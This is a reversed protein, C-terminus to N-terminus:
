QCRLTFVAFRLSLSADPGAKLLSGAPLAARLANLGMYEPLKLSVTVPSQNGTVGEGSM